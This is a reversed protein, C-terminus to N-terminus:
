PHKWSAVRGTLKEALRLHELSGLQAEFWRFNQPASMSPSQTVQLGKSDRSIKKIEAIIVVRMWVEESVLWADLNTMRCHQKYKYKNIVDNEGDCAILQPGMLGEKKGEEVKQEVWQIMNVVQSVHLKGKGVLVSNKSWRQTPRIVTLVGGDLRSDDLTWESGVAICSGLFDSLPCLRGTNRM